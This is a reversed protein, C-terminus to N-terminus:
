AGIGAKAEMAITNIRQRAPHVISEQPSPRHARKM